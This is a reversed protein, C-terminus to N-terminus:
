GIRAVNFHNVFNMTNQNFKILQWPNDKILKESVMQTFDKYPWEEVYLHMM